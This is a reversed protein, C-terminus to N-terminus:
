DLTLPHGESITVSSKSFPAFGQATASVAYQGPALGKIQYQGDGGSTGSSAQGSSSKATVVANPIVAGSPDTVRGRLVSTQALLFSSSFILFSFVALAFRRLQFSCSTVYDEGSYFNHSAVKM